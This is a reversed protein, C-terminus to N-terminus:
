HSVRFRISRCLRRSVYQVIRNYDSSLPCGPTPMTAAKEFNVRCGYNPPTIYQCTRMDWRQMLVTKSGGLQLDIRFTQPSGKSPRYNPTSDTNNASSRIPSPNSDPNASTGEHKAATEAVRIWRLLKRLSSRDAVFDVASWDMTTDANEEAVADVARLLPILPSAASSGM